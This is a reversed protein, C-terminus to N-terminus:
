TKFCWSKVVSLNQLNLSNVNTKWEETLQADPDSVGLENKVQVYESLRKIFLSTECINGVMRQLWAAYLSISLTHARTPTHFEAIGM